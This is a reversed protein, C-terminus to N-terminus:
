NFNKLITLVTTDVQMGAPVRAATLEPDAVLKELTESDPLEMVLRLNQEDEINVGQVLVKGGLAELQPVAENNFWRCFREYDDIKEDVFFIM